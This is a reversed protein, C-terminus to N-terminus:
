SLLWYTYKLQAHHLEPSWQHQSPLASEQEANLLLTTFQNDILDILIHDDKDWITKSELQQLQALLSPLQSKNELQELFKHIMSRSLSTIKKPPNELLTHTSAGFLGIEHIDVFLGRHDTFRWPQEFFSTIGSQSVHQEISLSGFIFDICQSGRAHTAPHQQSNQILSTMQTHALFLALKSNATYLGENADIMVISKDNNNNFEIILNALDDLLQQRPDPNIQGNRKM